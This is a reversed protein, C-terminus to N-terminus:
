GKTSMKLLANKNGVGPLSINQSTIKLNQWLMLAIVAVTLMYLQSENNRVRNVQIEQQTLNM